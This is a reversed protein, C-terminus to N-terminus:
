ILERKLWLIRQLGSQIFKILIFMLSRQERRYTKMEFKVKMWHSVKGM